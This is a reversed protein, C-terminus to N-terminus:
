LNNLYRQSRRRKHKIMGLKRYCYIGKEDLWSFQCCETKFLGANVAIEAQTPKQPAGNSLLAGDQREVKSHAM